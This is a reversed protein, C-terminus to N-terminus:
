NQGCGKQLVTENNELFEWPKLQKEKTVQRCRLQSMLSSFPSKISRGALKQPWASSSHQSDSTDKNRQM